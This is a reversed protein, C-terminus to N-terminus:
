GGGDADCCEEGECDPACTTGPMSSSGGGGGWGGGGGFGGGGGGGGGAGGGGGGGCNRGYLRSLFHRALSSERTGDACQYGYPCRVRRRYSGCGGTGGDTPPFDQLAILRYPVVVGQQAEIVSPIDSVLEFRFFQDEEPMEVSIDEARIYGHNKLEFQTVFVDGARMDPITQGLPEPVLVAAPVNAEFVAQLDIEYEDEISTETVSWEVTVLNYSLFISESAVTGPQITVRGNASEHNPASVRFRYRGAPIDELLIEGHEDTEGEYSNTLITEDQLRVRAGELGEILQGQEDFTATYINRVHILAEGQGSQTINVNLLVHNTSHNSSSVVLRYTESLTEIDAPADVTVPVDLNTGAEIERPDSSLGLSIWDPAADGSADTLKLEVDRATDFGVNAIRVSRTRSDAQTLGFELSSADPTLIPDASLFEFNVPVMAVAQTEAHDSVLRLYFVGTEPTDPGAEVTVPLVDSDGSGLEGIESDVDVSLGPIANGDPQDEPQYEFRVGSAQTGTGARIEFDITWPVEYPHRLNVSSPRPQLREIAFQGHVPRDLIDPHVVAVDYIGSEGPLPEFWYDFSGGSETQVPIEREFGGSSVVVNLDVDEMPSGSTRELARGRILVPEDGYSSEPAILELEGHYSTEVLSTIRRSRLGDFSLAYEPQDWAYHLHDVELEVTLQDPANGPVIVTQWQSTWQGGPPIRAITDGNTLTIVDEGLYQQFDSVALVNDQSDMLKLRIESSPANGHNKATVLDIPEDGPNEFRARVRGEGGRTFPETVLSVIVGGDTAPLDVPWGQRSLEGPSPEYDVYAEASVVDGLESYGPVAVTVIAGEDAELAFPPSVHEYGAFHLRVTLSQLDYPSDNHVEFPVANILGSRLRANPGVALSIEPLSLKRGLGQQQNADIPVVEYDRTGGTFGGDVYEMDELLESNLVFASGGEHAYVDFGAVQGDHSWSITPPENDFRKISLTSIPLLDFNLYESQSPQSENGAQDLATVAYTHEGVVPSDDLAYEYPTGSVVPELADVSTIELEPSRYLNYVLEEDGPPVGDPAQWQAVIGSSTLQLELEGPPDPPVSDSSVERIPGPGSIAEQGNAHRVSVVTYEYVADAPTQDVYELDSVRAATHFDQDGPDRRLVEYAAADEVESWELGVEGDPMPWADVMSPPDLPPLEGQYVQFQHVSHMAEGVNGLDDEASWRFSLTEAGSQGASSPLSFEASWQEDTDPALSPIAHWVEPEGSLNYELVPADPGSVPETLTLDVLVTVGNTNDIPGSPEIELLEVEPGDTDITITEGEEVLTGRNGALDRASFVAWATASVTQPTIEFSGQYLLEDVEFLSVSMPAGGEPTISLFPLALLPESVHVQVSVYGPGYREGDPDFAEDSQYEILTARPPVRDSVASALSSAASFNGVANEAVVRYYYRQDLPTPDDFRTDDIPDVNVREAQSTGVFEQTSRYVHYRVGSGEVPWWSVRVIGDERAAAAVGTPAEPIDTDLVVSVAGSEPGELGRNNRAVAVLENDGETLVVTENFHGSGDLSVWDSASEGNIFIRVEEARNVHGSVLVEAINTVYGDEPDSISPAPPAALEIEVPISISTANGVTDFATIHLANPGDSEDELPWWASFESGGSSDVHELPGDSSFEVHSVGTEDTANVTVPGSITLVSQEDIPTGRYRINSLEPGDTDERPQASISSVDPDVGGNLNVATVAFYYVQDNILDTVQAHNQGNFRLQDPEMDSVDAIPEDSVYVAYHDVLSEQSVPDWQLVVQSHQASASLGSPNELWTVGTISRGDSENGVVDYATLRIEYGTAPALDELWWSEADAALEVPDGEDVYLRYGALDGQSDPSGVWTIHLSDPFSEAALHLVEEPPQLNSPEVTETVVTPREGGSVNYATVGVYYLQDNELGGFSASTQNGSVTATPAMGDVSSFDVESVYVRYQQVLNQPESHEWSVTGGQHGDETSLGTPNDLWTAALLEAGESENGIDDIATLRLQYGSAPALDALTYAEKDPPFDEPLPTDNVYLRYSVLDGESDASATWALELLNEESAQVHFGTVDEPPLNDEPTISVSVVDPEFSGSRDTAVVAFHYTDFPTVDQVTFTKHGADTTAIASADAIHTFSTDSQYVTYFDIDGGNIIENYDTWSLDISRGGESQTAIVPVPGPPTNDYNVTASVSSSANGACDQARFDFHNDGPLLDVTYEWTTEDDVPVAPRDNIWVGAGEPKTGTFTLIVISTQESYADLQPAEPAVTDVKFAGLFVDSEQGAHDFLQGTVQYSGDLFPQDPTFVHVDNFDAWHGSVPEEDLEVERASAGVDLGADPEYVYLMIDEPPESLCSGSTPNMGIIAPKESPHYFHLVAAESVNGAQDRSTISWTSAGPPLSLVQMWDGSGSRFALSDNIWLDTDEERTGFILVKEDYAVTVSPSLDHSLIDPTDPPTRDLLIEGHFASGPEGGDGEGHQDFWLGHTSQIDASVEVQYQGAEEIAEYLVVRWRGPGVKAVHQVEHSGTPGEIHLKAPALGGEDMSQTFGIEFDMLPGQVPRGPKLSTVRPPEITQSLHITGDGGADGSGVTGGDVSVGALTSESAAGYYIAVRGGGGGASHLEASGGDASIAGPGHLLGAEIWISGGSGAGSYSGTAEGGARIDGKVELEDTVLRLAGGGKGSNGGTGLEVPSEPDGYIPNTVASAFEGGEGGHSGGHRGSTDDAQGRGLGTVDVAGGQDILIYEAYMEVGDENGSRHGVLGGEGVRVERWQQQGWPYFTGKDIELVDGPGVIEARQDWVGDALTLSSLSVLESQVVDASEVLVSGLVVPESIDVSANRLLLLEPIDERIDASAAAIGISENDIIVRERSDSRDKLFITGAGGAQDNLHTPGGGHASVQSFLDFQSADDFYIAIRGGGGGRFRDNGIRWGGRSNISGMGSLTGAEIWISGGSPFGGSVSDQEGDARIEGDLLISDSELYIAGGGRGGRAGVGLDIPERLSGFPMNPLDGFRWGGWGGYSAGAVNSLESPQSLGRASVDIASGSDVLLHDLSLELRWDEDESDPIDLSVLGGNVVELEGWSQPANVMLTAGDVFVRDWNSAVSHLHLHAQNEVRYEESGGVNLEGFAHWRGGEVQLSSVEIDDLNRVLSHRVTAEGLSLTGSFEVHANAVELEDPLSEDLVTRGADSGAPSNDIRVLGVSEASDKLYVTGAGGSEEQARAPGGGPAAVQSLLDFETADNFYIAVRGGSGGYFANSNTRRGGRASISGAGAITDTEIWVSGGSPYGGSETGREGDVRIEGDLDIQEALLYISGGGRGGLAGVGVNAPEFISGFPPNTTHGSRLGGWGGYSGGANDTTISAQGRGKGTLDIASQADVVLTQLQLELAWEGSEDDPVDRTILGGNTVELTSWQQPYNIVMVGDDVTVHTLEEAPHNIRVTNGDTVLYSDDIGVIAYPGDHTVEVGNLAYFDTVTLSGSHYWSGGDHELHAVSLNGSHSWSTDVLELSDISIDGTHRIASNQTGIHSFSLDGILDVEANFIEIVGSFSSGLETVGAASEIPRNDIRLVGYEEEVGKLYITGAAGSPDDEDQTKGGRASVQSGLDFGSADEYYIAIRGGSGGLFWSGSQRAGGRASIDGAGSLVGTEIWVSGGSPHGGWNTTQEGDARVSGDLHITDAVLHLAGGGRGARAGVGLDVPETFSGFPPNTEHGPRVGGWGGYSGGAQSTVDPHQERGRATVDISSDGDIVLSGLMLQLSWDTSEDDPVDQTVLGENIVELSPWEQSQNVVLTGGDVVPNQWAEQHNIRVTIGSPVIYDTDLGVISYPGDHTMDFSAIDYVDTIQLFGSHIWNSNQAVFEAVSLDGSQRWESYSFSLSDLTVAETSTIVSNAVVLDGIYFTGDLEVKSEFVYLSDELDVNGTWQLWSGSVPAALVHDGHLRVPANVIELPEPLDDEIEAFRADAGTEGNDIRVLGLPDSNQRIYITGPGGQGPNGSPGGDARIVAPEDQGIKSVMEIPHSVDEFMPECGDFTIELDPESLAGGGNGSSCGGHAKVQEALEFGNVVDFYLAIRGGGGAAGWRYVHGGGIASILGGGSLQGADIWVSGGSGPGQGNSGPAGGALIDGDVILEDVTLRIAGGGRTTSGGVGLDTPQRLSGFTPNTTADEDYISGKGGYSGGARGSYGDLRARGKGVLDIRSNAEITFTDIILHPPHETELTHTLVAGGTLQLSSLEHTGDITLVAGDVVVSMGHLSDDESGIDTDEDIVIADDAWAISGIFCVLFLFSRISHKSFNM